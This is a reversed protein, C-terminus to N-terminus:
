ICVKLMPLIGEMLYTLLGPILEGNEDIVHLHVDNATTKSATRQIIGQKTQSMTISRCTLNHKTSAVKSEPLNTLAKVLGDLLLSTQEFFSWM